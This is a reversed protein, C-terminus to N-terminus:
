RALSQHQPRFGAEPYDKSTAFARIVEVNSFDAPSSTQMATKMPTGESPEFTYIAEPTTYNQNRFLVKDGGMGVLGDVASVPLIPVTNQFVGERDLVRIQSPGGVVDSVFIRSETVVFSEVVVDSEPIVVRAKELETEGPELRLIKGRPADKHSQLYLSNDPGFKVSPIGDDYHTIQKWEGSPGLLFHAFEGGDGNAVQTIIYKNDPSTEFEVEAIIPFQDGIVYTDQETPTGLAHFYVQQYFRLSDAPREGERPYRSYFFGSGDAKWAVDGGATPGNVRPVVDSLAEGTSVRYVHIDGDETGGKSLSVAVLEADPSIEFFDIATLGSPDLQNPDLIVKVTNLDHPSDMVVLMPQDKTPDDKLAFLHGNSFAFSNYQPSAEKYLQWLRESIATRVPINDLYGRAYQTQAETWRQVATDSVKELWQYNDTVTEGHYTTSVPNKATAPPQMKEQGCGIMGVVCITWVAICRSISSSGPM